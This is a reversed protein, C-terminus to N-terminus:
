SSTHSRRPINQHIKICKSPNVHIWMPTETSGNPCVKDLGTVKRTSLGRALTDCTHLKSPNKSIHFRSSRFWKLRQLFMCGYDIGFHAGLYLFFMLFASPGTRIVKKAVKESVERWKIVKTHSRTTNNKKTKLKRVTLIQLFADFCQM